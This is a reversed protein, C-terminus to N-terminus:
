TIFYGQLFISDSDASNEDFKSVWTSTTDSGVNFMAGTYKDFLFIGASELVYYRSAEGILRAGIISAEIMSFANQVYQEGQSSVLTDRQLARFRQFLLNTTYSVKAIAEEAPIQALFPNFQDVIVNGQVGQMIAFDAFRGTSADYVGTAYSVTAGLQESVFRIPLYTYDDYINPAVDTEMAAGNVYVTTSGIVLLLLTGDKNITVEGTDPNWDIEGGLAQILFRLPVLTRDNVTIVKCNVLSGNVFLPKHDKGYTESVGNSYIITKANYSSVAKFVPDAEAASPPPNFFGPSPTRLVNSDPAATAPNETWPTEQPEDPLTPLPESLEPSPYPSPESLETGPYPNSEAPTEQPLVEAAKAETGAFVSCVLLVSLLIALFRNKMSAETQTNQKALMLALKKQAILALFCLPIKLGQIKPSHELISIAFRRSLVPWRPSLRNIPGGTSEALCSGQFLKNSDGFFPRKRLLIQNFILM